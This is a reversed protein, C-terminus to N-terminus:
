THCWRCHPPLLAFSFTFSFAFTFAFSVYFTLRSHLLSLTTPPNLHLLLPSSILTSRCPPEEGSVRHLSTLSPLGQPSSYMGSHPSPFKPPSSSPFFVAPQPTVVTCSPLLSRWLPRAFRYRVGRSSGGHECFRIGLRSLSRVGNLAM